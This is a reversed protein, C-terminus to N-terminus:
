EHIYVHEGFEFTKMTELRNGMSEFTFFLCNEKLLSPRYNMAVAWRNFSITIFSNLSMM